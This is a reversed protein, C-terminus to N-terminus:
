LYDALTLAPPRQEEQEEQEEKRPENEPLYPVIRPYRHRRRYVYGSPPNPDDEARMYVPAEGSWRIKRVRGREVLKHLARAITKRDYGLNRFVVVGLPIAKDPLRSYVQEPDM